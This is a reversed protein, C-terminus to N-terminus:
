LSERSGVDVLGQFLKYVLLEVVRSFINYLV